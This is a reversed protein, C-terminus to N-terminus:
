LKSHTPYSVQTYLYVVYGLGDLLSSKTPQARTFFRHALEPARGLTNPSQGSEPTKRKLALIAQCAPPPSRQREGAM